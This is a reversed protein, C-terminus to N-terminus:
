GEDRNGERKAIIKDILKLTFALTRILQPDDTNFAHSTLEEKLERLAACEDGHQLGRLMDDAELLRRAEKVDIGWRELLFTLDESNNTM